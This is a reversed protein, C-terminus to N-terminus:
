PSRRPLRTARRGRGSASPVCALNLCAEPCATKGAMPEILLLDAIGTGESQYIAIRGIAATVASLTVVYACYAYIRGFRVLTPGGKRAFVPFWFAALGVFGTAVHIWLIADILEAM